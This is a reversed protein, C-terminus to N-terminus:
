SKGLQEIVRLASVVGDEHFGNFWYAGCYYSHRAGSIEGHRKQAIVAHKSFQPHSYLYRGLVKEPQIADSRNLTVCFIEPATFGQLINMNYTLTPRKNEGTLLYNWAAHALRNEPLLRTDTHLVVESEAYPIAGLIQQEERSADSLLALAEDSHCAFIVKDFHLLQGNGLQLVVDDNNRSVRVVGSDAFFEASCAAMLAKVYSRSGGHLVFWQPRDQINLLGHNDCFQLFFALPFNMVDTLPTSWIAATMPALYHSVMWGSFRHQQLFEGLTTEDDLARERLQQKALKNFRLIEKLFLWFTPSFINKRQAFLTNLDHGNYELGTESCSVAFSMETPKLAIHLEDMLRLFNPYTKDNCVIFGTDIAYRGSAVEVDKTATHGGIYPNKDFVSVHHDRSLKYACYMGAIGAGIVAIRM